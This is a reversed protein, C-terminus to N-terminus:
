ISYLYNDWKLFLNISEEYSKNQSEFQNEELLQIMEPNDSHIEYLWLTSTLEAGNKNYINSFKHQDSFPQM